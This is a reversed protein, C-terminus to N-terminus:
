STLSSTNCGALFTDSSFLVQGVDYKRIYVTDWFFARYKQLKLFCQRIKM